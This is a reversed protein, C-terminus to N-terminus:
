LTSHLSTSPCLTLNLNKFTCLEAVNLIGSLSRAVKLNDEDIDIGYVRCNKRALLCALIGLGCGIDLVTSKSKIEKALIEHRNVLFDLSQKCNDIPLKSRSLVRLLSYESLFWSYNKILREVERPSHGQVELEKKLALIVFKYIKPKM